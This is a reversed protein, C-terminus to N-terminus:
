KAACAPPHNEREISAAPIGLATLARAAEALSDLTPCYSKSDQDIVVREIKGSTRDIRIGGATLVAAGGALIPHVYENSQADAPLPAIALQGHTDVILKYRHGSELPDLDSARKVHIVRELSGGSAKLKAVLPPYAVRSPFEVPKAFALSGYLSAILLLRLTM